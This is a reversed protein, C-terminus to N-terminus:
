DRFSKIKLHSCISVSAARARQPRPYQPAHAGRNVRTLSTGRVVRRCQQSRVPQQVSRCLSNISASTFQYRSYRRQERAIM